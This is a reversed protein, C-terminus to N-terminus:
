NLYKKRLQQQKHTRSKINLKEKNKNTVSVISNFEVPKESMVKLKLGMKSLNKLVSQFESCTVGMEHLKMNKQDTSLDKKNEPIQFVYRMSGDDKFKLNLYNDQGKIKLIFDDEKEFDIVELDDMVEYGKNELCLILQSKLFLHEKNKIEDEEYLKSSSAKLRNFKIQIENLENKTISSSGILALCYKVFIERETQTSIHFSTNSLDSLIENIIIKSKRLNESELISDHLEKFFFIDKLSESETLQQWEIKYKERMANDDCNRILSKIKGAILLRRDLDKNQQRKLTYTSDTEKFKKIVKDSIKARIQNIIEEKEIIHELVLKKELDLKANFGFYFKSKPYIFEVKSIKSEVEIYIEPANTNINLKLYNTIQKKFENFSIISSDYFVLFSLYSKYDAYKEIFDANILDCESLAKFLDAIRIDIEKNVRNYTDQGFTGKLDFVLVKMVEDLQKRLKSLEDKCNFQINMESDSVDLSTIESILRKLRSQLLFVQNLKGDFVQMSYRSPPSYSKPGSM